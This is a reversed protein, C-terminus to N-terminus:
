LTPESSLQTLAYQITAIVEADDEDPLIEKLKQIVTKDKLNVAAQAVNRLLAKRGARTLPSSKFRSQFGAGKKLLSLWAIGDQPFIEDETKEQLSKQNWPCVEQCIDCGFIWGGFQDRLKQPALSKAEITWYSICKNSDLKGPAIFAETPCQDLCRTCGGCFDDVPQSTPLVQPLFFGALHFGSGHSRNLTCCNKGRWGIGAESALDREFVPATDVFGYFELESHNLKTKLFHEAAKLINKASYHYDLTGAYAAVRYKKDSSKKRFDYLPRAYPFAFVVISNAWPQFNKPEMRESLRSAMYEMSAHHGRDIWAKLQHAHPPTQTSAIGWTIIQTQSSFFETLAKLCDANTLSM